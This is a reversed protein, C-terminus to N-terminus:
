SILDRGAFVAELFYVLVDGERGGAWLRLLVRDEGHVAFETVFQYSAVKMEGVTERVMGILLDLVRFAGLGECVEWRVLCVEDAGDRTLDAVEVSM